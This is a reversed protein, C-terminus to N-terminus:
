AVSKSAGCPSISLGTPRPAQLSGIGFLGWRDFQQSASQDSKPMNRGNRSNASASAIPPVASMPQDSRFRRDQGEESDRRQGPCRIEVPHDDVPSQAGAHINPIQQLAEAEFSVLRCEGIILNVLRNKRAQLVLCIVSRRKVERGITRAPGFLRCHDYPDHEGSASTAAVHPYPRSPGLDRL